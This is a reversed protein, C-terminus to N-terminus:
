TPGRASEQQKGKDRRKPANKLWEKMANEADRVNMPKAEANHADLLAGTIIFYFYFM